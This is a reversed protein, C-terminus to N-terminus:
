YNGAGPIKAADRHVTGKRKDSGFGWKFSAPATMNFNPNYAGPSQHFLQAKRSSLDDRQGTGLRYSPDKKKVNLPNADYNGPGPKYSQEKVEPSFNIRGHISKQPSENGIVSKLEYNGPGPIYKQKEVATNNRKESGFGFSPSQSKIKKYDPSHVGPGPIKKANPSELSQRQETGFKSTKVTELAKKSTTSDYAGPGPVNAVPKLPEIRHGMSFQFNQTKFKDGQYAGPGPSITPTFAGKLKEGMTKGQKEVMKSPVTYAQPSPSHRKDIDTIKHGM